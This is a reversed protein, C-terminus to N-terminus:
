SMFIPYFSRNLRNWFFHKQLSMYVEVCFQLFFCFCIELARHEAVPGRIKAMKIENSLENEALGKGTVRLPSLKDLISVSRRNVSQCLLCVHLSAYRSNNKERAEERTKGGRKANQRSRWGRHTNQM